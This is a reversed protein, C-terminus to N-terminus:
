PVAVRDGGRTLVLLVGAAIVALSALLAFGLWSSVFTIMVGILASSTFDGVGNITQLVGFGSGRHSEGLLEAAYAGEVTDVIAAQLGALIFIPALALLSPAEFASALCALAFVAYGAALLKRKSVRDALHGVPFSAVAYVINLVVYLLVAFTAADVQGLSPQLVQEARLTFIVNSFNSIGFLGVGVLFLKFTRPLSGVSARFSKPEFRKGHRVERVLVVVVIVSAVGPAFSVFFVTSYAVHPILLLLLLAIGSGLVAGTTDMARQFGFAKGVAGSPVSETLLADRPPGRSGRGMWGGVRLALVELWSTAFGIAPILAGTIAYGLYMIPTRQGIRDSLYGSYSKVASSAGDSLGEVLGVIAASGGLDFIILFPLVATAMEHSMDSFLSTLSIGVVNRNLWHIGKETYTGAERGRPSDKSGKDEASM